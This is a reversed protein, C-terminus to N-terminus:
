LVWYQHRAYAMSGPPVLVKLEAELMALKVVAAADLPFVLTFPPVDILPPVRIPL